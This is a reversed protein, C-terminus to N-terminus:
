ISDLYPTKKLTNGEDQYMNGTSANLEMYSRIYGANEFDLHLPKVPIQRGDVNLSVVNINYHKIDFPIKTITGNLAGSDVCGIVLRKPLQGLFMNDQVYNMNGRPVTCVKVEVCRMPYKYSTEELTEVHGMRVAPSQYKSQPSPVWHM